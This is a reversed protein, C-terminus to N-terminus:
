TYLALPKLVHPYATATMARQHLSGDILCPYFPFDTDFVPRGSWHGSSRQGSSSPVAQDGGHSPCVHTTLVDITSRFKPRTLFWRKVPPRPGHTIGPLCPVVTRISAWPWPHHGYPRSIASASLKDQRNGHEPRFEFGDGTTLRSVHDARMYGGRWKDQVFSTTWPAGGSPGFLM